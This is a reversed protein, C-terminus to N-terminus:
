MKLIPTFHFVTTLTMFEDGIRQLAQRFNSEGPEYELKNQDINSRIVLTQIQNPIHMEDNTVLVKSRTDSVIYALRDAPTRIDVPVCVAGIKLVALEAAVLGISREFFLIAFDGPGLGALALRCALKNALSNLEVYTIEKEHHVVAIDIPTKMMQDEFLHHICRDSPYMARTDNWTELLLKKEVASVIDFSAVPLNTNAAMYTLVTQLYGVYRDITDKNYLGTAYRISMTVNDKDQIHHLELYSQISITDSLPRLLGETHSYFRAQHDCMDALANKVCEFLKSTNLEGSLDVGLALPVTFAGTTVTSGYRILITDQASLRSLVITWAVLVATALDSGHDHALNELRSKVPNELNASIISGIFSQQGTSVHDTPLHLGAQLVGLSPQRCSIKPLADKRTLAGDGSKVSITNRSSTDMTANTNGLATPQEEGNYSHRTASDIKIIGDNTINKNSFNLYATGNNAGQNPTQLTM